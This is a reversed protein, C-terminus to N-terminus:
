EQNRGSEGEDEADCADDIDRMAREIHETSIDSDRECRRDASSDAPRATHPTPPDVGIMVAAM